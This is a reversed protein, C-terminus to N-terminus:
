RHLQLRRLLPRLESLSYHQGYASPRPVKILNRFRKRVKTAALKKLNKVHFGADAGPWARWELFVIPKSHKIDKVYNKKKRHAFEDSFKDKRPRRVVDPPYVDGLNNSCVNKADRIRRPLYKWLDNFSDFSKHVKGLFVLPTFNKKDPKHGKTDGLVAVYIVRSGLRIKEKDKNIAALMKHKCTCLTAYETMLNLGCGFQYQGRKQNGTNIWRVSDIYYFRIEADEKQIDKIFTRLGPGRPLRYCVM